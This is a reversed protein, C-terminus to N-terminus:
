TGIAIWDVDAWPTTADIPTVNDVATPKTTNIYISGAAPAGSQDGIDAAVWMHTIVPARKLSAVVAVVTALGTAVTVAESDPTLTGRALKYGAAIGEVMGMDPIWGTALSGGAGSKPIKNAAATATAVEDAGGNQHRSAHDVPNAELSDIDSEATDIDIEAADMAAKLVTFNRRIQILISKDLCGGAETIQDLTTM